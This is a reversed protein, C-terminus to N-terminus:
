GASFARFSASLPRGPESILLRLRVPGYGNDQSLECARSDRLGYIM